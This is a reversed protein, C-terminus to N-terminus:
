PKLNLIGPDLDPDVPLPVDLMRAFMQANQAAKGQYHNNFFLYTEKAKSALRRVKPEWEELEDRSYLYDYRQWAEEHEFWKEANRGHFRVYAVDSTAMAVSPMLGRLRPEDVCCYGIRLDKLLAFTDESAWTYNRFEVVLPLDGFEERLQRVRNANTETRKFSWPYQALLCGLKGADMLPKVSEAFERFIALDVDPSHTIDKNAKVAFRFGDPTKQAMREFTSPPPIGYYSSNIEVARFKRAYYALMEAKKMDKPYFFGRWDDYSFGSTGILIDGM